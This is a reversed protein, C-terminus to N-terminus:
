ALSVNESHKIKLTVIRKKLRKWFLNRESEESPWLIYTKTLMLYHLTNPRLRRPIEELLVLILDERRTELLRHQALHMEFQCWQSLLFRKSIILIISRSRDMCSVINELISLGVQFDREHLCVSINCDQEVHPLFYDLVWARDENCYSIFADYNFITTDNFVEDKNILSLMTTNKITILFYRLNKRYVYIFLLTPLLTLPILFLLFLRWERKVKKEIDYNRSLYSCNTIRDVNTLKGESSMLCRFSYTDDKDILLVFNGRARFDKEIRLTRNASLNTTNQRRTIANNFYRLGDNFFVSGDNEDIFEILSRETRENNISIGYVDRLSCSCLLFNNSLDVYSLNQFDEFMEQTVINMNNRNLSLLKLNPMMSIVKNFWSLMRNHGLDLVQLKKLTISVNPTLAAIENKRLQAIELNTLNYLCDISKMGVEQAYLVKLSNEIGSFISRTNLIDKNGSVELFRLQTKDFPKPGLKRLNSFCLSLGKLHKLDKFLPVNHNGFQSYSLDLSVLKSGRFENRNEFHFSIPRNMDDLACNRSLDLHRLNKLGSFTNAEVFHIQNESLYLMLLKPMSNFTSSGLSQIGCARLDLQLLNEFNVDQFGKGWSSLHQYYEKNLIKEDNFRAFNIGILADDYNKKQLYKMSFDNGYFTIYVLTEAIRKGRHYQLNFVEPVSQLGCKAMSFYTIRDYGKLEFEKLHQEIKLMPSQIGFLDLKSEDDVNATFNGFRDVWSQLDTMYGSLCKDPEQCSTKCLFCSFLILVLFM